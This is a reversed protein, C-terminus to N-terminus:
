EADFREIFPGRHLPDASWSLEITLNETTEDVTVELPTQEPDSYIKPALWQQSTASLIKRSIVAVKHTGPVCGDENDFTMLTFRGNEDLRGYAPRAGAPLIQVDGYGLPTGDILVQGSVPVRLPRNDCGVLVLLPLLALLLRRSCLGGTRLWFTM